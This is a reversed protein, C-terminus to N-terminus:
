SDFEVLSKEDYDTAVIFSLDSKIIFHLYHRRNKNVSVFYASDTLEVLSVHILCTLVIKLTESIVTVM